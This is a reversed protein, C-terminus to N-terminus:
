CRHTTPKKKEKILYISLLYKKTVIVDSKKYFKLSM